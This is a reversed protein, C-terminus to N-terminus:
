QGPRTRVSFLACFVCSLITVQQVAIQIVSLGLLSVQQRIHASNVLLTGSDVYSKKKAKKKENILKLQCGRELLAEVSVTATGIEDHSGDGDWDLCRLLVPRRLDGGCLSDLPVTLPRWDASLSKKVVETRHALTASGDASLRSLELFPDSKGFTDKKDLRRASLSLCLQQRCGSVEEASVLLHGRGGSLRRQFQGAGITM